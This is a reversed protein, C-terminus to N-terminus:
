TLRLVSVEPRCNFRMGHLSGVGRTVHLWRDNWRHLGRVYRRDRVPAFPTGLWPLECQGGHTHGCLLLDWPYPRLASKSDPNHSLVITAVGPERQARAFAPGPEMEGAWLDGLGVLQIDRGKIQLREARNHLLRVGARDLLARVLKTDAYGNHSAWRGGDHNGLVAFTPALRACKALVAAYGDWDEWTRTIFDGPLCILDPKAALGLEIAQQLFALPMPAAHFDSLQLVTVPPGGGLAVEHHVLELWRSEVFRMWGLGGLLSCSFGHIFHRRTFRRPLKSEAPSAM